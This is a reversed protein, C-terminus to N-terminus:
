SFATAPIGRANAWAEYPHQGTIEPPVHVLRLHRLSTTMGLEEYIAATSLGYPEAERNTFAYTVESIGAMRMAALCMPCPHGSAYVTCGELLPSQLVQSAARVAQMEAHATPDNSLNIENVGRSIVRGYKVVVAGFPRGGESINTVALDIAEQLFVDPAVSTPTVLTTTM